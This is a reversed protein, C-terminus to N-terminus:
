WGEDLGATVRVADAVVDALHRTRRLVTRQRRAGNGRLLVERLREDVMAEDGSARLAPRVHAVLAAFVSRCPVPRSTLPDLLVGDVGERAAQWNALRLLSARVPLPAVGDAWQAAATEVLARGLAAVLVADAAHLCVDAARIEVTPYRKSARADFYVMGADVLVGTAVMDAVHADYATASGFIETPGASPWRLMAPSRYSAYGTDTGQWFPSNASLALLAPLWVRIRDLVGVAEERSDVAVHVHCGSTLHERATLGFRRTMSEYRPDSVVRTRVPLPCTAVAAVAAGSAAAAAGALARLTRLEEELDTLSTHPRTASEVQEQAMEHVLHGGPPDHWAGGTADRHPGSTPEPARARAEALVRAALPLARGTEGDVLLLEEEVGVTRM